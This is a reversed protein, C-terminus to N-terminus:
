RVDGTEGLDYVGEEFLVGLGEDARDTILDGRERVKAHVDTGYSGSNCSVQEKIGIAESSHAQDEHDDM